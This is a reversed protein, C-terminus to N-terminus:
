LRGALVLRGDDLQEDASGIVIVESPSAFPQPPNTQQHYRDVLGFAIVLAAAALGGVLMMRSNASRRAPPNRLVRGRLAQPARSSFAAQVERRLELRRQLQRRCSECDALHGEFGSRDGDPHENDVFEEIRALFDDCRM